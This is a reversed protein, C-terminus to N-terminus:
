FLQNTALIHRNRIFKSINLACTNIFYRHMKEPTINLISELFYTAYNSNVKSFGFILQANCAPFILKGGHLNFTKIEFIM